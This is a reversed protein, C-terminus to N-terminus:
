GSPTYEWLHRIAKLLEKKQCYRKGSIVFLRAASQYGSSVFTSIAPCVVSINHVMIKRNISNFANEADVLLVAESHKDNYIDYMAHISAEAGAEQGACVQVSGAAHIVDKKLIKMVVKGAIRRLVKGVGIPRLRLNKNLSTLRCAIFAEM